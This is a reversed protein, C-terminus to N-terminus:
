MWDSGVWVADYGLQSRKEEALKLVWSMNFQIKSPCFGGDWGGVWEGVVEPDEEDGGLVRQEEGEEAWYTKGKYEFEFVDLEEEDDDECVQGPAVLGAGIAEQRQRRAVIEEQTMKPLHERWNTGWLAMAAFMEAQEEENEEATNGSNNFDEVVRLEDYEDGDAM